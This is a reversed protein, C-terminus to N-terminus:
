RGMRKTLTAPAHRLTPAITPAADAHYTQRMSTAKLTVGMPVPSPTASSTASATRM